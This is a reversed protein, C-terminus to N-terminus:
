PLRLTCSDPFGALTGGAYPSPEGARHATLYKVLMTPPVDPHLVHGKDHACDVVTRQAAALFPLAAQASDELNFVTFGMAGVQDTPGGHTLLVNGRDSPDLDPWSWDVKIFQVLKTQEPDNMWAGSANVIAAFLDPYRSHLLSTFVSGASFGLSYIRSPDITQQEDLCGLMAEFFALDINTDGPKGARIDWGLGQPPNMKTDEPTLIVVPHAPDANPDLQVGARFDDAKDGFGHWSFVVGLPGNTDSPFDAFFTRSKGDVTITNSGPAITGGPCAFPITPTSGGSDVDGTGGDGDSDGGDVDDGDGGGSGASGTDDTGAGGGSPEADVAGGCAALGLALTTISLLSLFTTRM